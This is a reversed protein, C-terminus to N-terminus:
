WEINLNDTAIMYHKLIQCISNKNMRTWDYAYNIAGFNDWSYYEACGIAFLVPDFSDNTMGIHNMVSEKDIWGDEIDVECQGFKFLDDEEPYPNCLLMPFVTDSHETDVLIGNEFFNNDGYNIFM